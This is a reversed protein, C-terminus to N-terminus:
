CFTTDLCSHFLYVFSRFFSRMCMFCFLKTQNKNQNGLLFLLGICIVFFLAACYWTSPKERHASRSSHLLYFLSCVHVFFLNRAYFHMATEVLSFLFAIFFVLVVVLPTHHCVNVYFKVLVVLIVTEISLM